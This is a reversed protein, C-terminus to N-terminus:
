GGIRRRDGGFDQFPNHEKPPKVPNPVIAPVPDPVVPPKPPDADVTLRARLAANERMLDGMVRAQTELAGVLAANDAELAARGLQAGSVGCRSPDVTWRNEPLRNVTLDRREMERVQESTWQAGLWFAEDDEESM